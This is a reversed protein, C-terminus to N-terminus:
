QTPQGAAIAAARAKAQDVVNKVAEALVAADNVLNTLHGAIQHDEAGRLIEEYIAVLQEM